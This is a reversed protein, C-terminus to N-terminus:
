MKIHVMLVSLQRTLDRQVIIAKQVYYPLLLPEVLVTIVLWVNRHQSLQLLKLVSTDRSAHNASLPLHCVWLRLILALQVASRYLRGWLVTNVRLVFVILRLNVRM